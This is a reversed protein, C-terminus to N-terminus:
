DTEYEHSGERLEALLKELDIGSEAMEKRILFFPM